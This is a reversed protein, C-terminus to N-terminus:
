LLLFLPFLRHRWSNEDIMVNDGSNIDTMLFSADNKDGGDSEDIATVKLKRNVHRIFHGPTVVSEFSTYGQYYIDNRVLWTAEANFEDLPAGHSVADM